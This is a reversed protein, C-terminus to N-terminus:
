VVNPYDVLKHGADEKAKEIIALVQGHLLEVSFPKTLYGTAGADIARQISGMDGLATLMAIPIGSTRKDAQLAEVAEFGDVGPMMVDLLIVDPQQRRAVKVIAKAGEEETVECGDKELVLRLVQRIDPEDDVILVRLAM